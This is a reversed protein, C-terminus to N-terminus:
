YMDIVIGRNILILCMKVPAQKVNEQMRVIQLVINWSIKQQTIRVIYLMLLQLDMGNFEVLFQCFVIQIQEQKVAQQM